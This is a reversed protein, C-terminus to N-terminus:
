FKVKVSVEVETAAASGPRKVGAATVAKNLQDRSIVLKDDKLTFARPSLQIEQKELKALASSTLVKSPDISGPKRPM